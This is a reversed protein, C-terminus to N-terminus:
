LVFALHLPTGEVGQWFTDNMWYPDASHDLAPDFQSQRHKNKHEDLGLYSDLGDKISLAARSLTRNM